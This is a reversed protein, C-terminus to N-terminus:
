ILQATIAAILVDKDKVFDYIKLFEELSLGISFDGSWIYINITEDDSDKKFSIILDSYTKESYPTDTDKIVKLRDFVALEFDPIQNLKGKSLKFFAQNKTM